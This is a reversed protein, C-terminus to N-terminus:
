ISFNKMIRRKALCMFLTVRSLANANNSAKRIVSDLYNTFKLKNDSLKWM